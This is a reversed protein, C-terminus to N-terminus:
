RRGRATMASCRSGTLDRHSATADPAVVRRPEEVIGIEEAVQRGGDAYARVFGGPWEDGLVEGLVLWTGALVGFCFVADPALGVIRAVPRPPADM